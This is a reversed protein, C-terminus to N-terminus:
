DVFEVEVDMRDRAGAARAVQRIAHAVRGRSGIVRGMEGKAVRVELRVLKDDHQAEIVSVADSDDVISAVIFHCVERATPAVESM